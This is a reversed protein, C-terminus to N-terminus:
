RVLWETATHVHVLLQTYTLAFVAVTAAAAGFAYKPSVRGPSTRRDGDWAVDDRIRNVGLIGSQPANLIPTFADVGYMGLASVTFTGGAM